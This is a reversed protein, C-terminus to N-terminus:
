WLGELLARTVITEPEQRLDTYTVDIGADRLAFAIREGGRDHGGLGPRAVLVRIPIAM